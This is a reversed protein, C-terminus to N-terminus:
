LGCEVSPVATPRRTNAPVFRGAIQWVCKGALKAARVAYSAPVSVPRGFVSFDRVSPTVVVGAAYRLKDLANRRLVYHTRIADPLTTFGSERQALRECVRERLTAIVPDSEIRERWDKPLKVEFLRHVLALALLVVRECNLRRAERRLRLWDLWDNGAVIWALDYILGLSPWFGDKSSYLAALILWHENSLCPLDVGALASRRARRWLRDFPLRYSYRRPVVQANLCVEIKTDPHRFRVNAEIHWQAAASVNLVPAFRYGRRALVGSARSLTSPEILLNINECRRADAAPYFRAALAPAKFPLVRVGAIQLEGALSALEATLRAVEAANAAHDNCLAQRVEDPVEDPPVNAVCAALSSTLVHWRAFELLRKWDVSGPAQDVSPRASKREALVARLRVLLWDFEPNGSSIM